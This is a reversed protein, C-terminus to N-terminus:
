DCTGQPQYTVEAGAAMIRAVTTDTIATIPVCNREVAVATLDTLALLPTLDRVLNRSVTVVQLGTLGSIAALSDVANRGLDLARLAGLGRLPELDAVGNSSAALSVLETMGRVFGLNADLRITRLRGAYAALGSPTDDSSGNDVVIIEMGGAPAEASYLSALCDDLLQRTNYSVVIISLDM